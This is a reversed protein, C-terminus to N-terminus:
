TQRYAWKTLLWGMCGVVGLAVCLQYVGDHSIVHLLPNTDSFPALPRIDDHMFSDLLIHTLTGGFAGSWIALRTPATTESLWDLKYTTVEQNYRHLIPRCISPSILTVLFGIVVAGIITHTPGHLIDSQRMMGILPEIDMAIQAIGFTILSLHKQAAPKVILAVGMHFSTFPM